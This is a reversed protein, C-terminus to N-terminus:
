RGLWDKFDAMRDGSVFVEVKPTPVIDLKLRGKFHTYVTQISKLGVIYQRNIRFFDAPHLIQTLKELSYDVPLHQGDRTVLFSLKDESYFYAVENIEVTKLKSGISIMFRSKYKSENHGLFNLLTSLNVQSFQRKLNKFKQIAFELEEQNIPKLLYDISNVKFAKVMYEDFATTFIVPVEVRTEEFIKFALDDELHIDMFILDPNQNNELWKVAAGVSSIIDLIEIQPDIKELLGVLRKATLNEDEIILVKM